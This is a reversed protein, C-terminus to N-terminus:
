YMTVYWKEVCHAEDVALCMLNNQYVDSRFMERWRLNLLMAEPSMYVLQYDGHVVGARVREDRQAKGLFAAHLGRATYKKVQDEMISQLPSAVLVISARNEGRLSDFVYPLAAYCLSKGSGTPLMVFVDRGLVFERIAVVQDGSARSYGLKTVAEHIARDITDRTFSANLRPVSACLLEAGRVAM